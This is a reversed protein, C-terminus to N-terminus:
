GGGSVDRNVIKPDDIIVKSFGNGHTLGVINASVSYEYDKGDDNQDSLTISTNSGSDPVSIEGNGNDSVIISSSSATFFEVPYLKDAVKVVPSCWNFTIEVNDNVTKIDIKGEEDVYQTDTPSIQQYVFKGKYDGNDKEETDYAIVNISISVTM